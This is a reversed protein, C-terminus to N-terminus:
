SGAVVTRDVVEVGLRRAYDAAKDAAVRPGMPFGLAFIGEGEGWGELEVTLLRSRLRNAGENEDIFVGAVDDFTGSRVPPTFFWGRRYDWTRHELDFRLRHIRLAGALAWLAFLGFLAQAFRFGPWLGRVALMLAMLVVTAVAPGLRPAELVLQRESDVTLVPQSM